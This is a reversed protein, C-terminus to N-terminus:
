EFLEAAVAIMYGNNDIFIPAHSTDDGHGGETAEAYPIGFFKAVQDTHGFFSNFWLMGSFIAGLALVGLPIGILASLLIAVKAFRAFPRTLSYMFQNM